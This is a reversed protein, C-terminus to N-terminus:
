RSPRVALRPPDGEGLLVLKEMEYLRSYEAFKADAGPAHRDRLFAMKLVYYAYLIDHAQPVPPDPSEASRTLVQPLCSHYICFGAEVSSAPAPWVYLSNNQVVYYQPTGSSASGTALDQYDSFSDLPVMPVSCGFFRVQHLDQFRPITGLLDIRYVGQEAPIWAEDRWYNEKALDEQCRNMARLIFEDTLFGSSGENFLDRVTDMIRDVRESM